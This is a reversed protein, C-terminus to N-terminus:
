PVTTGYRVLHVLQEHSRVRWDGDLDNKYAVFHSGAGLAAQRDLTSDGVFLLEDTRCGLRRAAEVLMDPWPKPRPVDRSTVVASFHHRLGFHVLLDEGSAGRNTAVALPYDRGLDTLAERLGPEMELLPVFRRYDLSSAYALAASVQHAGLLVRLVEPSAATHCLALTAEDEMCVPPAGFHELITNYFSLNAARSEFLVGDCDFVIARANTM